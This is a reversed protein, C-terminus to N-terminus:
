RPVRTRGRLRRVCIVSLILVVGAVIAAAYVSVFAAAFAVLLVAAIALLLGALRAPSWSAKRQADLGLRTVPPAQLAPRPVADNVEVAPAEEVAAPRPHDERLHYEMETQFSFLLECKPCQHVVIGTM